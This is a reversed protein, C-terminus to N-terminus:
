VPDIELPVYKKYKIIFCRPSPTPLVKYICVTICAMLYWEQSLQTGTNALNMVSPSFVALV